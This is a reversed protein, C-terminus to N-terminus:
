THLFSHLRFSPISYGPVPTVLPYSGDQTPIPFRVQTETLATLVRLERWGGMQINHGWQWVTKYDVTWSDTEFSPLMWRGFM